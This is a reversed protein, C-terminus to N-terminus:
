HRAECQAQLRTVADHTGSAKAEVKALREGQADIAVSLPKLLDTILTRIRKEIAFLGVLISLIGGLFM